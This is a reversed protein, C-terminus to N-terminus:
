ATLDFNKRGGLFVCKPYVFTFPAAYACVSDEVCLGCMEPCNLCMRRPRCELQLAHLSARLDHAEERLRGQALICQWWQLSQNACM